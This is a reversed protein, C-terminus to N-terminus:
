LFKTSSTVKNFLNEVEKKDNGSISIAYVNGKLYFFATKEFSNSLYKDFLLGKQNDAFVEKKVYSDNQLERLKVSPYDELSYSGPPVDVVEMSFIIRPNDLDFSFYEIGTPPIPTNNVKQTYLKARKPYNFSIYKGKYQTDGKLTQSDDLPKRGLIKLLAQEKESDNLSDSTRNLFVFALMSIISLILVVVIFLIRKMFKHYCINVRNFVAFAQASCNLLTLKCLFM